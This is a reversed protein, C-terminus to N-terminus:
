VPYFNCFINLEQMGKKCISIFIEHMATSTSLQRIGCYLLQSLNSIDYTCATDLGEKKVDKVSPPGLASRWWAPSSRSPITQRPTWPHPCATLEPPPWWSLQGLPPQPHFRPYGVLFWPARGTHSVRHWWTNHSRGWLHTSTLSSHLALNTHLSNTWYM